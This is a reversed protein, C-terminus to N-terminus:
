HDNNDNNAIKYDNDNAIDCEDVTNQFSVCYMNYHVYISTHM